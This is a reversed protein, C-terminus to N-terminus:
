AALCIAASLVDPCALNAFLLVADAEVLPAPEAGYRPLMLAM